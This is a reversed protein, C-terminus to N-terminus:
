GNKTDRGDPERAIGKYPEGDNKVPMFQGAREDRKQWNGDGREFQTRATVGGRRFGNGTNTAM